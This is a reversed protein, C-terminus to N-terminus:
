SFGQPINTIISPVKVASKTGLTRGIKQHGKSTKSRIEFGKFPIPMKEVSRLSHQMNAVEALHRSAAAVTTASDRKGDQKLSKHAHLCCYPKSSVKPSNLKNKVLYM